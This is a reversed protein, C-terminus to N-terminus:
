FLNHRHMFHFVMFPYILRYPSNVQKMCYVFKFVGRFDLIEDLLRRLTRAGSTDSCLEQNDM